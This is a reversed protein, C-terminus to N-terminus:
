VAYDSVMFYAFYKNHRVTHYDQRDAIAVHVLSHSLLPYRHCHHPM